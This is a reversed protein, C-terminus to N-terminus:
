LAKAKKAQKRKVQLKNQMTRNTKVNLNTKTKNMFTHYQKASEKLKISNKEHEIPKQAAKRPPVKSRQITNDKPSNSNKLANSKLDADVTPKIKPKVKDRVPKVVTTKKSQEKSKQRLTNNKKQANAPQKNLVKKKKWPTLKNTKRAKKDLSKWKPKVAASTTTKTTTKTTTTITTLSAATTTPKVHSGTVAPKTTLKFKRPPPRTPKENTDLVTM